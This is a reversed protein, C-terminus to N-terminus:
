RPFKAEGEFKFQKQIGRVNMTGEVVYPVAPQKLLTKLEKGFAAENILVEVGYEAVASAPVQDNTVETNGNHAKLEKDKIKITWSLKDITVEFPNKNDLVVTFFGSGDSGGDASAVQAEKLKVDPLHPPAIERAGGIRISKMGVSANGEVHIAMKDWALMPELVAPDEPLPLTITVPLESTNFAAAKGSATGSYRKADAPPAPLEAEEAGGEAAAEGDEEGEDGEESAPKEDGSENKVEGAIAISTDASVSVDSGTGNEIALIVNLKMSDYDAKVVDVRRLTVNVEGSSGGSSTTACSIGVVVSAVAVIALVLTRM